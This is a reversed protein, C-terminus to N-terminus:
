FLNLHWFSVKVKDPMLMFSFGFFVIDFKDRNSLNDCRAAFDYWDILEGTVRADKEFLSKVQSIYAENIDIAAVRNAKSTKMFSKLPKGTGTGIDVMSFTDENIEKNFKDAYINYISRTLPLVIVINYIM